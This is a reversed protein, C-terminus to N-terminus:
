FTYTNTTVQKTAGDAYFTVIAYYRHGKTAPLICDDTYRSGSTQPGAYVINKGTTLDYLNITSIGIQSCYINTQVSFDLYLNASTSTLSASTAAFTKDAFVSNDAAQASFSLTCVVLLIVAVLKSIKKQM